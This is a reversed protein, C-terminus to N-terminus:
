SILETDHYNLKTNNLNYKQQDFLGPLPFAAALNFESEPFGDKAPNLALLSEPM